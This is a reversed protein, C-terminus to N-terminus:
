YDGYVDKIFEHEMMSLSKGLFYQKGIFDTTRWSYRYESLYSRSSNLHIHHFQNAFSSRLLSRMGWIHLSFHQPKNTFRVFPSDIYNCYRTLLTVKYGLKNFYYVIGPLVEGHFQNFEVLLISKNKPKYFWRLYIYNILGLLLEKYNAFLAYIWITYKNFFLRRLMAQMISQKRNNNYRIFFEYKQTTSFVFNEELEGAYSKSCPAIHTLYNDIAKIKIKLGEESAVAVGAKRIQYLLRWYNNSYLYAWTIYFRLDIREESAIESCICALAVHDPTMDEQHPAYIAEYKTKGLCERIKLTIDKRYLNLQDDPFDWFQVHAEQVGLMSLSNLCDKRREQSINKKTCGCLAHSASGDSVIVIDCSVSKRTLEYILQGCGFCEDDPHPVLILTKKDLSFANRSRLSALFIFFRIIFKEFRPHNNIERRISM